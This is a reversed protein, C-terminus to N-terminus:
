KSCEWLVQVITIKVVKLYELMSTRFVQLIEITRWLQILPNVDYAPKKAMTANAFMTM